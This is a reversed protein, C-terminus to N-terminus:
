YVTSKTFKPPNRPNRNKYLGAANSVTQTEDINKCQLRVLFNSSVYGSPEQRRGSPEQRRGSPEQRNRVDKLIVSIFSSSSSKPRPRLPTEPAVLRVCGDFTGRFFGYSSKALTLIKALLALYASKKIHIYNQCFCLVEVNGFLGRLGINVDRSVTVASQYILM